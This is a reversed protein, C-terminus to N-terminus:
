KIDILEKIKEFKANGIGSVKKIDEITKFKGNDKRYNIIKQATSEGIGPLTELESQMATNINIKKSKSSNSITNKNEPNSVSKTFDNEINSKLNEETNSKDEVSPIYVKMGDELMYALNIDLINANEKLGGAKEIADSVRNNEELEVVGEKNVSGCVHVKIMVKKDETEKYEENTSIEINEDIQSFNNKNIINKYYIFAIVLIVAICIITIKQKKNLDRM